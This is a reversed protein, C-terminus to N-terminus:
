IQRASMTPAPEPKGGRERPQKGLGTQFDREPRAGSSRPASARSVPAFVKGAIRGIAGLNRLEKGIDFGGEARGINDDVVGAIARATREDPEIGRLDRLRMATVANPPKRTACSAALRM